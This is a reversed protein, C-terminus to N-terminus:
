WVPAHIGSVDMSCTHGGGERVNQVVASKLIAIHDFVCHLLTQNQMPRQM